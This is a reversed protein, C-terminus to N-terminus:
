KCGANAWTCGAGGWEGWERLKCLEADAAQTAGTATVAGSDCCMIIVGESEFEREAFRFRFYQIPSVYLKIGVGNRWQFNGVDKQFSFSLSHAAGGQRWTV